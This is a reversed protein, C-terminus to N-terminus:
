LVCHFISWNAHKWLRVLFRKIKNLALFMRKFALIKGLEVLALPKSTYCIFKGSQIVHFKSMFYQSFESEFSIQGNSKGWSFWYTKEFNYSYNIKTQFSMTKSCHRNIKNEDKSTIEIPMQLQIKDINLRHMKWFYVFIITLRIRFKQIIWTLSTCTEFLHKISNISDEIM